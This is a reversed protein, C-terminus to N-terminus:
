GTKATCMDTTEFCSGNVCKFVDNTGNAIELAVSICYGDTDGIGKYWYTTNNNPDAPLAQLITQNSAVARIRQGSCVPTAGVTGAVADNDAFINEGCAAGDDPYVGVEANYLEMATAIANLDSKRKADRAKQRANNLSVVALTALLGIIAIVVLLEILTFGKQNKARQMM